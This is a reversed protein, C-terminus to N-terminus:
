ALASAAVYVWVALDFLALLVAATRREAENRIM